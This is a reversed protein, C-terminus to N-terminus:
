VHPVMSITHTASGLYGGAVEFIGFGVLVVLMIWEVWRNMPRSVKNPCLSHGRRTRGM